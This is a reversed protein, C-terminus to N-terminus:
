NGAVATPAGAPATGPAAGPAAAAPATSSANGAVPTEGKRSVSFELGSAVVFAVAATVLVLLVLLGGLIKPWLPAPRGRSRSSYPSRYTVANSGRYSTPPM